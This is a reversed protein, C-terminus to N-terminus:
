TSTRSTNACCNRSGTSREGTSATPASGAAKTEPAPPAAEAKTEPAPLPPTVAPPEAFVLEANSQDIQKRGYQDITEVLVDYTGPALKKALKLTWDNGSTTLASGVSASDEFINAVPISVKLKQTSAADYTGSISDPSQTNGQANVTPAQPQTTVVQLEDTTKDSASAGNADGATVIVDYVGEALPKEVQLAWEGADNTTLAQTPETLEYAQDAIRVTLKTANTSPWQGKLFPKDTFSVMKEVVPAPIVKPVPAAIVIENQTLDKQIRGSADRTEVMVDYSGPPLQQPVAFKWQSGSLTLLSGPAKNDARLGAAPIEISISSAQDVDWTGSLESVAVSSSIPNVTPAAPAIADVVLEGSTTDRVTRAAGDTVEVQVDYEADKLSSPLVLTWKGTGNTTLNADKKWEYITEGVSVKLTKGVAEDWTGTLTAAEDTAILADVTPLKLEPPPAPAAQTLQREAAAALTGGNKDTVQATVAHDGPSLIEPVTLTWNGKADSTLEANKNLVYAKGDLTVQLGAAKDSPWTGEIVTSSGASGLTAVTPPAIPEIKEVPQAAVPPPEAKAPELVVIAAAARSVTVNGAADKVSFDLDYSGPKLAVQPVFSFQGAAPATLEPSKGLEYTQDLLKVALTSGEEAPWTGTVAYPWSKDLPPVSLVPAAPAATDIVLKGPVLASQVNGAADRVEVSVEYEGDPLKASPKLKWNGDRVEIQGNGPFTYTNIGLKVALATAVGQQWKGTLEPQALNTLKSPAEPVDLRAQPKVRVQQTVTRIGYTESLAKFLSDAVGQSPVDGSLTVDRGDVVVKVQPDIGAAAEAARKGLDGLMAPTSILYAALAPLGVMVPSWAFWKSPRWRYM